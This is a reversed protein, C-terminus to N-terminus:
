PISTNHKSSQGCARRDLERKRGVKKYSNTLMRRGAQTTVKFPAATSLLDAHVTRVPNVDCSLRVLLNPGADKHPEADPPLISHIKM